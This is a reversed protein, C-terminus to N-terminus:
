AGSNAHVGLTLVQSDERVNEEASSVPEMASKNLTGHLGFM